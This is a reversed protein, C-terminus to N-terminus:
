LEDSLIATSILKMINRVSTYHSGWRAVCNPRSVAQIMSGFYRSQIEAWNLDGCEWCCAPRAKWSLTPVATTNPLCVAPKCLPFRSIHAPQPVSRPTM